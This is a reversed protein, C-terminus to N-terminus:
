NARFRSFPRAIRTPTSAIPISRSRRMIIQWHRRSNGHRHYIIGRDLLAFSLTSILNRAATFDRLADDDRGLNMYCWGRNGYAYPLDGPDIKKSLATEYLRAGSDFHDLEVEHWAQELLNAAEIVSVVQRVGLYAVTCILTACIAAALGFVLKAKRSLLFSHVAESLRRASDSRYEIQPVHTSGSESDDPPLNPM